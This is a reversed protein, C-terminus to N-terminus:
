GGRATMKQGPKQFGQREAIDEFARQLDPDRVNVASDDRGRDPSEAARATQKATPIILPPWSSGDRRPRGRRRPGTVVAKWQNRYAQRIRAKFQERRPHGRGPIDCLTCPTLKQFRVEVAGMRAMLGRAWPLFNSGRKYHAECFWLAYVLPAELVVGHRRRREVEVTPMRELTELARDWYAERYGYRREFIWDWYLSGSQLDYIIAGAQVLEELLPLARNTRHEHALLSSVAQLSVEHVLEPLVGGVHWLQYCLLKAPDSLGQISPERM